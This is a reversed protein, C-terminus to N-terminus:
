PTMTLGELSLFDLFTLYGSSLGTATFKAPVGVFAVFGGAGGSSSLPLQGLQASGIKLSGASCAASCFVTGQFTNSQDLSFAGAIVYGNPDPCSNWTTNFGASQSFTTNSININGSFQSPVTISATFANVNVGGAGAITYPGAPVAVGVVTQYVGGAPFLQQPTGNAPTYSLAGAGLQASVGGLFAPFTSNGTNNAFFDVLCGGGVPPAILPPSAAGGFKVFAASLTNYAQSGSGSFTVSGRVLGLSGFNSNPVPMFESASTTCNGGSNISLTVTNSVQGAVQLQVAVSCGQAQAAPLQVNVQYLGVYGPALGAFQPTVTSTGLTVTVANTTAQGSGAAGDPPPGSVAGLGTAYIIAVGGQALATATKNLPTNAASVYNEIAGPGKGNSTQSFIGPSAAQVTVNMAASASNNVTVVVPQTGVPVGWPVEANIQGPSTFFLPARIGGITVSAGNLTTPLPLSSAGGSATALNSGFISIIAGAAIGGGPAGPFRFSAGNLIGGSGIVPTQAFGAAAFVLVM